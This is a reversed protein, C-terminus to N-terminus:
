KIALPVDKALTGKKENIYIFISAINIINNTTTNTVNM